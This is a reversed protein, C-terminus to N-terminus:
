GDSVNTLLCPACIFGVESHKNNIVADTVVPILDQRRLRAPVPGHVLRRIAADPEALGVEAAAAWRRAIRGLAQAFPTSVVPDTAASSARGLGEVVEDSPAALALVGIARTARTTRPGRETWASM